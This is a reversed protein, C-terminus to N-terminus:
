RVVIEIENKGKVAIWPMKIDAYGGAPITIDEVKNKEENNVYLVVSVDTASANGKNELKFSSTVRDGEKFTKPLHFVSGFYLEVKAGKIITMTTIKESKKKGEVNVVINIEAWDDPKVLGTPKVMLVVPKSKGPELTIKKLDLSTTWKRSESNILTAIEYSRTKRTHNQIIMEFSAAGEPFIEKIRELCTIKVFKTTLLFILMIIILFVLIFLMAALFHPAYSGFIGDLGLSEATSEFFGYLNELINPGIITTTVNVTKSIDGNESTVTFTLKDSTVNTNRPVYITVEIESENNPYLNKVIKKYSLNWGHESSAEIQYDDSWIGNNMNKIKFHYTDNEGHRITKNSPTVINIEYEVAAESVEVVADFTDKGTSGIAVFTVELRAGDAAFNDSTVIASVTEKEDKSIYVSESSIEIDWDEKEKDSFGSTTISVTDDESDSTIDITYKVNGGPVVKENTPDASVDMKIHDTEEFEIKLSSPFNNSDYLLNINRFLDFFGFKTDNDVSIKLGLNSNYTIERDNLNNFTFVVLPNDTTELLNQITTRDFEKESSSIIASGDFLTAVVKIKNRLLLTYIINLDRHSIYLSARANKLIRSRYLKPGNWKPSNESLDSSSSANKTPKEEDMENGDHLYYVKINEDESNPAKFPLTVSSSHSTSDYVLSSSMVATFIESIQDSTINFEEDEIMSRFEKIIAGLEQFLPKESNNEQNEFCDLVKEWFSKLFPLEILKLGFNVIAKDGPIIEISFLLADGPDLTYNVNELTIKQEHINRLLSKPTIKATTNKIEKPLPILSESNMSYLCVKVEDQNNNLKSTLESLFYLDFVVDGKIEVSENGYHEYTEVIRFPNPLLIDFGELLDEYESGMLQIAWAALWYTLEESNDLGKILLPPYESDNQKTPPDQSVLVSMGMSDSESSGDLNMADKFYFTTEESLPDASAVPVIILAPLLSGLILISSLLIIRLTRTLHM